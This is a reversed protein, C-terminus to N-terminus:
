WFDLKAGCLFSILQLEKPANEKLHEFVEQITNAPLYCLFMLRQIM